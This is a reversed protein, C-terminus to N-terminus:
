CHSEELFICFFHLLCLLNSSSRPSPGSITAFSPSTGIRCRFSGSPRSLFSCELMTLDALLVLSIAFGLGRRILRLILQIIILDVQNGWFGRYFCLYQMEVVCIKFRLPLM